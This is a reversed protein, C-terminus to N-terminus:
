EEVDDEQDGGAAGRVGRLDERREGVAGREGVVQVALRRGPAHDDERHQEDEPRAVAPEDRLAALLRPRSGSPRPRFWLRLSWGAYARRLRFSRLHRSQRRRLSSLASTGAKGAGPASILVASPVGPSTLPASTRPTPSTPGVRRGPRLRLHYTDNSRCPLR